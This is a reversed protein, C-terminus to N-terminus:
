PQRREIKEKEIGLAKYVARVRDSRFISGGETVIKKPSGYREIAAHLVSLGAHGEKEFRKRVRYVTSRDMKLYGAIAKDSWGERHLTVVAERRKKDDPTGHYPDFSRLLKRPIASEQLMAKM